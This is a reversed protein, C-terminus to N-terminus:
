FQKSHKTIHVSRETFQRRFWSNHSSRRCFRLTNINKRTSLNIDKTYTQKLKVTIEKM